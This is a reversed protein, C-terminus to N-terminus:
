FLARFYWPETAGAKKLEISIRESSVLEKATEEQSQMLLEQSKGGERKVTLQGIWNVEKYDRLQSSPYVFGCNWKYFLTYVTFKNYPQSALAYSSGFGTNRNALWALYPQGVRESNGATVCFFQQEKHWM